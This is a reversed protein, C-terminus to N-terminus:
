RWRRETLKDDWFARPRMPANAENILEIERKAAVLEAQAAALEARLRENDAELNLCNYFMEPSSTQAYRELEKETFQALYPTGIGMLEDNKRQLKTIETDKEAIRAKDRQREAEYGDCVKELAAGMDNAALRKIRHRKAWADVEAVLKTLDYLPAIATSVM